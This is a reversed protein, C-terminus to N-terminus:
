ENQKLLSLRFMGDSVEYFLLCDNKKAFAIISQTRVGRKGDRPVPYGSDDFQVATRCTNAVEFILNPSNVCRLELRKEVGEPLRNLADRANEIANAFATALEIANVPLQEPLDLSTSVLIGDRKAHGLYVSFIDNLVANECYHATAGMSAFEQNMKGLYSLAEETKDNKILYYVSQAHYLIDNRYVADQRTHQALTDAQKQLASIQAELVDNERRAELLACSDTLSRFVVIYVCVMVAFAMYVHVVSWVSQTFHVPYLGCMLILVCFFVPIAALFLWDATINDAVRRYPKRACRYELLFAALFLVIRLLLDTIKNGHLATNLLTGTVSLILAITLQTVYNFVAQMAHDTAVFYMIAMAPVFLSLVMARMFGVWGLLHILLWSSVGVYLFYASFVALITKRSYKFDTLVFMLLLTMFTTVLTKVLGFGYDGEFIM